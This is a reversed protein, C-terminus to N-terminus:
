GARVEECVMAHKGAWGAQTMGVMCPIHDRLCAVAQERPLERERFQYGLTGLYWDYYRKGQLMAGALFADEGSDYAFLDPLGLELAIERDTREIGVQELLHGLCAYSCSSNFTMPRM